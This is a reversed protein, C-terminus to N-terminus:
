RTETFGSAISVEAELSPTEGFGPLDVAIVEREACLADMIPAWSLWGAGLGHVLLLPPGHGRRVHNLESDQGSTSSTM